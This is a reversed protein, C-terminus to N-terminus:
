EEVKLRQLLGVLDEIMASNSVGTTCRRRADVSQLLYAACVIASEHHSGSTSALGGAKGLAINSQM